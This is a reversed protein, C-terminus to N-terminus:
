KEVLVLLSKIEIGEEEKLINMIEDLKENVKENKIDIIDKNFEALNVHPNQSMEYRTEGKYNFSRIIGRQVLLKLNDHVTSRSVNPQTEKVAQYIRNFSPHTEELEKLKRILERRQPTIKIKEEKLKEEM